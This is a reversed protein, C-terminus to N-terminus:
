GPMTSATLPIDLDIVGGDPRGSEELEIRGLLCPALYRGAIKTPPWWDCLPRRESTCDVRGSYSM